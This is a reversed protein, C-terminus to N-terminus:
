GASVPMELANDIDIRGKQHSAGREGGRGRHRSGALAHEPRRGTVDATTLALMHLDDGGRQGTVRTRDIKPAFM